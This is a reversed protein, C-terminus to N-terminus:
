NSLLKDFQNESIEKVSNNEIQLYVANNNTVNGDVFVTGNSEDVLGAIQKDDYNWMNQVSNFSIGVSEYAQLIQSNDGEGEESDLDGIDSMLGANETTSADGNTEVSLDNNEVATVNSNDTVGTNENSSNNTPIDVTELGTIRYDSDRLVELGITGANDIVRTYTDKATEDKFYGVIKEDYILHNNTSDYTLGYKQYESFYESEVVYRISNNELTDNYMNESGTTEPSNQAFVTLAAGLFVITCIVSIATIKKYKMIAVIREHIANKGFGNSFLSWHYQKEALTILAMAYQKKTNEGLSAIVKEDCSLEIDRNFLICMIWVLPNFWHICVALLMIIKILNDKRKIHVMEHLLVCKWEIDTQTKLVKPLVIKPSLIGFTLPTFIRDSELIKISKPISVLKRFKQNEYESIPLAVRLKQYEKFYLVGFAVFLIIMTVFWVIMVWNFSNLHSSTTTSIGKDIIGQTDPINSIDANSIRHQVANTAPTAIGYHIPLNFPILLRLLAIEWLLVFVIKPFKNITLSRLIIVLLILIGGSISMQILM